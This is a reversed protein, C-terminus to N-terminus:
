FTLKVAAQMLRPPAANVVGGFLSSSKDGNVAAPGFFQARNFTNFTELRFELAKSENLRFSKLLALDSNFMGPGYFFRRSATGPTGLVNPTFLSTNFYSLGNQPHHNLNLPGPTFDPLDLSHTNVGNPISGMLSNDGDASITVPFGSSVRTIGSISWGKTLLGMRHLLREFPLQYEYSAVLNHKLDFASLARTAEFNFPNAVDALSSGQDISKSYTYGIQFTLGSGSHRVNAEFSNYSSNGISDEWGNNSFAPGGFPGRTGNITKGAATIYTADEAFPGYTATGPMVDSPQSLQLCLAPDGPNNSHVLILHHAQSGVYSFSLVTNGTLQREISLFYNENYPYTNTTKPATMGAQPFFPSFDINPNPHDVSANLPPFVLPFPQVHVQGDSASAFPTAFLPPAPSTYSLGYPPQPEDFALLNGQIESYYIGYGARFSTKGPGGLIEGWLGDTRNPSYALGLRPSFKNRQPVLTTPVGVDTPYVLGAPATPYVKSQQKLVQVPEQNYKESWYQMLEWRLGYNLTLNPKIAWSDQAFGSVYKHRPYYSQSDAQNYNSAVGILFDAFDSGTETGFFAFSGNFTANPSINVQQLSAEVGTKLTHTGFVRSLDDSVSYTNNWQKLNTIPTGMVFSDFVVNEIGVISPALPFIGGPNAPDNPAAFGQSTLSPGVGGVPQGVNNASRMYSLHFENVIAPGFTKTDGLNILQARGLTLANFGPVSAGGQGTPYPNDSRYDDFFYYASLMGWRDSSLDARFSTKDDRVRKIQSGTSFTSPGTNPVPIYQLLNTAPASWASPQNKPPAIVANPFVCGTTPDNSTCPGGSPNQVTPGSFYYPEGSNVAYGLETSLLKALAPGSVNCPTEVAKRTATDTRTGCFGLQNFGQSNIQDSLNGARNALSPVPILGTDIGQNTRTGQYDAFFFVKNKRIPGGATGGFQNQQFVNREPSFFNKADLDTNRLFEFGSGHFQNTGSKTVVNVIGGSYNGYEADFNNTLVRFESISDLNPVISTGGNMMEKVDGGNVLFGNADERQGSISQNGPNLDGSPAIAVQAGAMVISNPLQTSMPVIGPQLALLDTYSRGNLAVTVIEKGTVVEGMQSSETEVHVATDSVVVEESQEGMTLSIDVRLEANVDIVLGTRKYPKFGERLIEIEYRGVPLAKFAYFGDVNTKTTQQITTDLNLATVMTDPIVGGSQDTVIGSISGTTDALVVSAFCPILTLLLLWPIRRARRAQSYFSITRSIMLSYFRNGEGRGNMEVPM